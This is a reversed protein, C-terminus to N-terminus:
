DFYCEYANDKDYGTNRAMVVFFFTPNLIMLTSLTLQQKVGSNM